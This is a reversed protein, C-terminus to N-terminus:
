EKRFGALREMAYYAGGVVGIDVANSAHLLTFDDGPYPKRAFEHVFGLLIDMPFGAMEVVGGGIIVQDPDFINLESAFPIAMAEIYDRILEHDRHLLFIDQFREAPFNEEWLSYLVHGAAYAEVCGRNGCTCYRESKYFPIHGLDCAVGHKGDLFRDGLYVMNGIGTGYYIGLTYGKGKLNQRTIDYQLLFVADKEIFVPVGFAEELPTVVDKGDFGGDECPPLNPCNYVIKKDKSVPSPFGITVAAVRARIGNRELYEAIYAGLRGITDGTGCVVGSPSKEFCCIEGGANVAGIRFNTGGIDIGIILDKM